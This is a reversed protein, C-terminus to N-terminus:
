VHARGIENLTILATVFPRKEGIVVVQSILPHGRLPDELAAPAVNKGGVTVIIEKARGTISM